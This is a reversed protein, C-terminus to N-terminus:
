HVSVTDTESKVHGPATAYIAVHGTKTGAVSIQGHKDTKGLRHGNAYVRADHVPSSHGNPKYAVVTVTAHHGRKLTTPAHLGLPSVTDPCLQTTPNYTCSQVLFLVDDGAKLVDDCVGVTAEKHNVWLQFSADGTPKEGRIATVFYGLGESYTGDWHGQSGQQLAGLATQGPCTHDPNGDRPPVPADALTVTRQTVLTKHVGEVRVHVNIPSAASASAACVLLFGACLARIRHIPM